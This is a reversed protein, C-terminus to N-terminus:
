PMMDRPPDVYWFTQRTAPIQSSAPPLPVANGQAQVGKGPGQQRSSAYTSSSADVPASPRPPRRGKPTPPNYEADSLSSITRRRQIGMSQETRIAQRNRMTRHDRPSIQVRSFVSKATRHPSMSTSVHSNQRKRTLTSYLPKQM